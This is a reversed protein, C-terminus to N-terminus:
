AEGKQLPITAQINTGEGPQSTVSLTGGLLRVREQMSVLGMGGNLRAAAVDFGVGEDCVELHLQQDKGVLKISVPTNGAHKSINHLSEQILRYLSSAIAQPIDSPLARTIFKVPMDERAEFEKTLRELAAALGLDDLIQPHLEHAVRKLDEALEGTRRRVEAFGERLRENGDVGKEIQEVQMELLAIKQSLDDHLDRAVRRREEEQATFLSAALRQLESNSRSLADETMQVRGELRLNELWMLREAQKRSTIDEIALLVGALGGPRIIQAHITLTRMGQDFQHEFALGGEDSQQEWLKAIAPKIALGWVEGAIEPFSRKEMRAWELQCLKQFARNAMQIRLEPDLIALPVQVSEIVAGSFENAEKLELQARRMNDIEFMVLVVGEIRNDVTRYPRARLVHWRGNRDEVEMEKTVLNDIVDQLWPELDDVRLNLRIERIHRGLDAARISLLREALPTFQRIHLDGSLIVVPMTLNNLLNVLDSTTRTLDENRRHLEENVTQLEETQSQLEEKATELEENISQLEENSSQIEENASILDQNSGEREHILTNLDAQTFALDRRLQVMNGSDDDGPESTGLARQKREPSSEYPTLFLVLLYKRKSSIHQIPTIELTCVNSSHEDQIRVDDVIVPLISGLARKLAERLIPGLAGKSMRLVNLNAEGRPLMLYASTNGLSQVVELKDNVVVGPPGHRAAVIRDVAGQLDSETTDGDNTAAQKELPEGFEPFQPRLFLSSHIRSFGPNSKFLKTRKDVQSFLDQFERLAESQGLLLFGQTRLAYHFGAVISRQAAGGLYILVNRCSVLDLRSYPPDQALNHEAFVCVERVRKSIQYGKDLKIFYRRLRETSVDSSISDAYIGRRAAEISRRSVDTGFLQISAHAPQGSMSELLCIAISYVEEGTACGPVWVRVPLAPDRDKLLMPFIKAKLAEFVGPDRFFQTVGILSDEYLERVEDEKAELLAAYEPLNDVRTVVMRRAIRRRLTTQKYISFDVGTVKRLLAYIRGVARQDEGGDGQEGRDDLVKGFRHAIQGLEAGIQSPSLVLDVHDAAIANRPMEEFKATREDQVISIGGEGKIAKLGLAGDSDTGSLVIGIARNKQDEALSRFFIDIPRPSSDREPRAELHLTGNKLSLRTNPPIVHVRNPQPPMGNEIEVVQMITSRRLIDALFSKRSASLHSIIVFAMGTDPPTTQLLDM